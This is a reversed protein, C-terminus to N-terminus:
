YAARLIAVAGGVKLSTSTPSPPVPFTRKLIQTEALRLVTVAVAEGAGAMDQKLAANSVEAVSENQLSGKDLTM